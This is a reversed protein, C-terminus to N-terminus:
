WQFTSGLSPYLVWSFGNYNRTQNWTESQTLIGMHSSPADSSCRRKNNACADEVKDVVKDSPQFISKKLKTNGSEHYLILVHFRNELLAQSSSVSIIQSWESIEPTRFTCISGAVQFSAVIRAEQCKLEGPVSHQHLSSSFSISQYHTTLM